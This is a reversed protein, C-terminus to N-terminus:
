MTSGNQMVTALVHIIKIISDFSLVRDAVTVVTSHCSTCIPSLPRLFRSWWRCWVSFQSSFDSLTFLSLCLLQRLISAVPRFAIVTVAIKFNQNTWLLYLTIEFSILFNNDWYYVRKMPIGLRVVKIPVCSCYNIRDVFRSKEVIMRFSDDVIFLNKIM